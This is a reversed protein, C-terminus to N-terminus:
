LYDTLSPSFLFTSSPFVRQSASPCKHVQLLARYLPFVRPITNMTVPGFFVLFSHLGCASTIPQYHLLIVHSEM